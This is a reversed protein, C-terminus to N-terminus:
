YLQKKGTKYEASCFIGKIIEEQATIQFILFKIKIRYTAFGINRM